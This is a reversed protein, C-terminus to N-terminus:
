EAQERARSSPVGDHHALHRDVAVDHRRASFRGSWRQRTRTNM